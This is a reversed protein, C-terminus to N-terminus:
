NLPEIIIRKSNREERRKREYEKRRIKWDPNERRKKEKMRYDYMKDPNDLKWVDHYQKRTKKM